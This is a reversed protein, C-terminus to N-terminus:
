ALNVLTLFDRVEQAPRSTNSLLEVGGGSVAALESALARFESEPRLLLFDLRIGESRCLQAEDLTREATEAIPPFMFFPGGGDQLHASPESDAVFLVRQSCQSRALRLADQVNTGYVYEVNLEALAVPDVVRATESYGILKPPSGATQGIFQLASAAVEKCLTWTDRMLLDLSMDMAVVTESEMFRIRIRGSGHKRVADGDWLPSGGYAPNTDRSEGGFREDAQM